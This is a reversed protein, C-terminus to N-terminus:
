PAADEEIQEITRGWPEADRVAVRDDAAALLDGCPLDDVGDREAAAPRVLHFGEQTAAHPRALSPEAPEGHGLQDRRRATDRRIRDAIVPQARRDLRDGEPLQRRQGFALSRDPGHQPASGTGARSTMTM